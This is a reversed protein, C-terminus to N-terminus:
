CQRIKRIHAIHFIFSDAGHDPSSKQLRAAPWGEAPRHTLARPSAKAWATPASHSRAIQPAPPFFPVWSSHCYSPGHPSSVGDLILLPGLTKWLTLTTPPRNAPPLHRTGNSYSKLQFKYSHIISDPLCVSTSSNVARLNQTDQGKILVNLIKSKVNVEYSIYYNSGWYLWVGRIRVLQVDQISCRQTKCKSLPGNSPGLSCQLVCVCLSIYKLKPLQNLKKRVKSSTTRECIGRIIDQFFGKHFALRFSTLMM